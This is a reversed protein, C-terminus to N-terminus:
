RPGAFEAVLPSAPQSGAKGYTVWLFLILPVALRSGTRSWYTFTGVWELDPIAAVLLAATALGVIAHRSTLPVSLRRAAYRDLRAIAWGIVLVMAVFGPYGFDYFWEGGLHAALSLDPVTSAPELIQTLLAGFGLPKTPWLARPVFFLASVILTSGDGLPLLGRGFLTILRGFDLLPETISGTGDLAQGYTAIGFQERAYILFVLAPWIATIVGAKVTRGPLRLCAPILAVLGLSVLLLRGYGTFVTLAYVGIVGGALCIPAIGLRAGRYSMLSVMLMAMGGFIVESLFTAGVDLGALHLALSSGAVGTGAAIGWMVPAQESPAVTQPYTAGHWFLRYMLVNTFFALATAAHLGLSVGNGQQNWWYLGALGVFIATALSYLGAASIQRGGHRWFVAVGFVVALLSIGAQSVAMGVQPDVAEALLAIGGLAAWLLTSIM